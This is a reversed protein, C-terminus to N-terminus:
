TNYILASGGTGFATNMTAGGIQAGSALGRGTVRIRGVRDVKVQAGGNGSIRGSAGELDAFGGDAIYAGNTGNNEIISNPAIFEGGDIIQLGNGTNDSIVAGGGYGKAGHSIRVGIPNNQFTSNSINFLAGSGLGYFGASSNTEFMGSEIELFGLKDVLIGYGANGKAKGYVSRISGGGKAYFAGGPNSCAIINEVKIAGCDSAQVAKKTNNTVTVNKGYISGNTLAVLGEGTFGHFSCDNAEAAAGGSAHIGYGAGSDLVFLINRVKPAHLGANAELAGNQMYFHTSYKNELMTLHNVNDTAIAGASSGTVAFDSYTPFTVTSGVFEIQNGQPHSLILGTAFDAADCNITVTVGPNIWYDALYEMVEKATPFDTPISFVTNTTISPM